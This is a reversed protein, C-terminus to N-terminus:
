FILWHHAQINGWGRARREWLYRKGYLRRHNRYKVKKEPKARSIQNKSKERRQNNSKVSTSNEKITAVQEKIANISGNKDSDNISQISASTIQNFKPNTLNQKYKGRLWNELSDTMIYLLRYMGVKGVTLLLILWFFTM